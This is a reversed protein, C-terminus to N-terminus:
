RIPGVRGWSLRKRGEIAVKSNIDGYDAASDRADGGGVKEFRGADVHRNELTRPTCGSIGPVRRRVQRHDGIGQEGAQDFVEPAIRRGGDPIGPKNGDIADFFVHLGFGDVAIKPAHWSKQVLRQSSRAKWRRLELPLHVSGGLQAEPGREHSLDRRKAHRTRPKVPLPEEM